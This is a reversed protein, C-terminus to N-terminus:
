RGVTMYRDIDDVIYLEGMSHLIDYEETLYDLVGHRQFLRLADGGSLGHAEKYAELCFAKFLITKSM